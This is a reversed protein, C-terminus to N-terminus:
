ESLIKENKNILKGELEGPLIKKKFYDEVSSSSKIIENSVPGMNFLLDIASLNSEFGLYRQKYVPPYFVSYKLNYGYDAM